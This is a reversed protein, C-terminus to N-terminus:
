IEDAGIDPATTSRADADMDFAPAGAPTGAGDCPSGSTIHMNTPFTMFLPDASIVGSVTMDALANVATHTTLIATAEDLYLADPSGRPDLDNSEFIRPDSSADAEVFVRATTCAGAGIINNRFIGSGSTPATGAIDLELGASTCAVAMGGGDIDNSHIDIENVGASVMVHIGHFNGTSTSGTNCGGGSVINNQIRAFSNEAYIGTATTTGCGGSIVNDDVFTGSEGLYVGWVDIGGRGTIVNGAIRMCGDDDCRVGVSTPPFGWQSGEILLNGLVVCQSATGATSAGCYVGNAGSTGGESGGTIHLNGDIVPHCDGISRIGDVRTTSTDGAAAIVFNDVIWPAAGGCDELWIGHSDVAGGWTNVVNARIVIGAGDGRIGIMAGSDADTGCLASTDIVAGPSDELYVGYTIGTGSTFRGRISNGTSGCYTNCRGGSDYGQCNDRVTPTSEVSRVAISEGTGAGADIWSRMILAEASDVLNVGYSNTVAPTNSVVLNSLIVSTGGDVTVASTTAAAHRDVRFGDLVTTSSVSSPFLVGEARGPAIVTTSTTCRTWDSSRYNGYVSVGNAMTVAGSYTFSSGCTAGAAVCVIRPRGPDAASWTVAAQISRFPHTTSGDATTDDGTPSVPVCTACDEDIAGDCDQDGGGCPDSSGATGPICTGVVGATCAPVTRLCAGIGCTLDGLGEDPSGDCDDDELNCAEGSPVVEGTCPAWVGATCSETGEICTGTGATGSPGSYCSRSHTDLVADDADDCDAGACGTGTGYGDRDGDTCDPCDVECEGAVCEWSGCPAAGYLSLCGAADDCEGATDSGTDEAGDSPVDGADDNVVDLDVEGTDVVDEDAGDGSYKAGGGCAAAVGALIAVLLHSSRM